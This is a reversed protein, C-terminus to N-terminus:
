QDLILAVKPYNKKMANSNLYRLELGDLTLVIAVQSLEGGIDRALSKLSMQAVKLKCLKPTADM